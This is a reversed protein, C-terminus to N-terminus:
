RECLADLIYIRLMRGVKGLRDIQEHLTPQFLRAVRVDVPLVDRRVAHGSRLIDDDEDHSPRRVFLGLSDSLQVRLERGPM